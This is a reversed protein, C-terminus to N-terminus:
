RRVQRCGLEPDDGRVPVGAFCAAVADYSVFTQYSYPVDGRVAPCLAPPHCVASLRPVHRLRLGPCRGLLRLLLGAAAGKEYEATLAVDGGTELWAVRGSGAVFPPWFEPRVHGAADMRLLHVSCATSPADFCTDPVLVHVLAPLGTGASRRAASLSALHRGAASM